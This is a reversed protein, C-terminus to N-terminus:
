LIESGVCSEIKLGEVGVFFEDLMVIVLGILGIVDFNKGLM